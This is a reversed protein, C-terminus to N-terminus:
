DQLSYKLILEQATEEFGALNYFHAASKFDSIASSSSNEFKIQGRIKFCEAIDVDPNNEDIYELIIDLLILADAHKNLHYLASAKLRDLRLVRNLPLLYDDVANVKELTDLLESWRELNSLCLGAKMIFGVFIYSPLLKSSQQEYEAIAGRSIFLAELDRDEQFLVWVQDELIRYYLGFEGALRATNLAVEIADLAEKNRGLDSLVDGKRWYMLSLKGDERSEEPMKEKISIAVNLAEISLEYQELESLITGKSLYMGSLSQKKFDDETGIGKLLEIAIEIKELAESDRDISTLLDSVEEYADAEKETDGSNAFHEVAEEAYQLAIRNNENTLDSFGDEDLFHYAAAIKLATQGAVWFREGVRAVNLAREGIRIINEYKELCEYCDMQNMLCDLLESDRGLKANMSEAIQYHNLAASEDDQLFLALGTLYQADAAVNLHLNDEAFEALKQNWNAMAEYDEDVYAREAILKLIAVARDSDLNQTKEFLATLESSTFAELSELETM